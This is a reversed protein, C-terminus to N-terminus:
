NAISSVYENTKLISPKVRNEWYLDADEEMQKLRTYYDPFELLHALAIKATIELNDDTVNTILNRSGHELEVDIAYIWMELSLVSLDVNLKDALMKAETETIEVM